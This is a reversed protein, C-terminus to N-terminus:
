SGMAASYMKTQIEVMRQIQEAGWTGTAQAEAMSEQLAAAKQMLAPYEAMATNDGAMAKKYLVLYEDVYAEYDDLMENTAANTADQDSEDADSTEDTTEEEDTHEKVFGVKSALTFNSWSKIADQEEFAGKYAEFTVWGSEGANLALIEDVLKHGSLCNIPELGSIPQGSEDLLTLVLETYNGNLTEIDWELAADSRTVNLKIEWGQELPTVYGHPKVMGLYNVAAETSALTVYSNLEGTISNSETTINQTTLTPSFAQMDADTPGEPEGGGCSIMFIGGLLAIMNLKLKRM